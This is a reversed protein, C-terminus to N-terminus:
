AQKNKYKGNAKEKGTHWLLYIQKLETLQVPGARQCAREKQVAADESRCGESDQVERKETDHDHSHIEGGKGGGETM